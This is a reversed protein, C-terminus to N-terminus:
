QTLPVNDYKMNETSQNSISTLGANTSNVNYLESNNLPAVVVAGGRYKRRRYHRRRTVTRRKRRPRRRTRRRGGSNGSILNALKVNNNQTTNMAEVRPSTTQSSM